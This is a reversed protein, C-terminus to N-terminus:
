DWLDYFNKAFLEFFKDKAENREKIAKATAEEGDIDIISQEKDRMTYLLGLMEDYVQDNVKEWEEEPINPYPKNGYRNHRYNGLIEDMVDIFWEFTEWKAMPSYGHTLLFGLRKFYIPIDRVNNLFYKGKYTFLGFTLNNTRKM